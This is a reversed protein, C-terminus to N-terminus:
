QIEQGGQSVMETIRLTMQILAERYEPHIDILTKGRAIGEATEREFPIRLLIPLDETACFGEVSHDGIGDRNIVVGVPFGLERVVEVALELDHLGFPTPETVMIVFDSGVVTEVMPCSTGPPTDAITIQGPGPIAWSKLQRIVPVPMAEGVKLLGRAFRFGDVAGAELTGVTRPVERIARAPCILTCSGCGHCLEPFVLVQDGLLALANFKCVEACDGCLTCRSEDIQPVPVTAKAEDQITPHLFLHADPAEVDCDLFLPVSDEALSLALSVAVTTKGTGGKGSAVAIRM